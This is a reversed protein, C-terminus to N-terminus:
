SRSCSPQPTLLLAAAVGLVPRYGDPLLDATEAQLLRGSGCSPSKAKLYCREVRYRLAKELTSQAGRIFAGTRDVGLRDVVRARGALVDAGDGGILRCAPRPTPLGGLQEPCVALRDKGALCAMLAPNEKAQGDYRCRQGCLCASVLIM